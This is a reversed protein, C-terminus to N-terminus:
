QLAYKCITTNLYCHTLTVPTFIHLILGLDRM